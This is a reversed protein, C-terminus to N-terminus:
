TTKYGMASAMRPKGKRLAAFDAGTIKDKPAAASAIQQQKPSLKKSGGSSHSLPRSSKTHTAGTHLTGDAMKHTPGKYQTGDPLFHPKGKAM